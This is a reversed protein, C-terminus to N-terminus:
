QEIRLQQNTFTMFDNMHDQESQRWSDMMTPTVTFARVHKSEKERTSTINEETEEESISDLENGDWEDSQTQTLRSHDASELVDMGRVGRRTGLLIKEPTEYLSVNEHCLSSAKAPNIFPLALAFPALNDCLLDALYRSEVVFDNLLERLEELEQDAQNLDVLINM